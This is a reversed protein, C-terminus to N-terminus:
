RRSRQPVRSAAIQARLLRRLEAAQREVEEESLEPGEDAESPALLKEELTQRIRASDAADPQPAQRQELLSLRHLLSRAM